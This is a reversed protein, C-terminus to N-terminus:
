ASPVESYKVHDAVAAVGGQEIVATWDTPFDADLTDVYITDHFLCPIDRDNELFTGEEWLEYKDYDLAASYGSLGAADGAGVPPVPAANTVGLGTIDTVYAGSAYEDDVLDVILINAGYSVWSWQSSGPLSQFFASFAAGVEGVTATADGWFTYTIQKDVAGARLNKLTITHAGNNVATAGSFDITFRTYTGAGYATVKHKPLKNWRASIATGTIFIAGEDVDLDGSGYDAANLLIKTREITKM